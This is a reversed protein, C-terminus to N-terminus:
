VLVHTEGINNAKRSQTILKKNNLKRTLAWPPSSHFMCKSWEPDSQPTYMCPYNLDM